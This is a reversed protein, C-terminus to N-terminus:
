FRLKIEAGKHNFGWSLKLQKVAQGPSKAGAVKAEGHHTNEQSETGWVRFPSGYRRTAHDDSTNIEFNGTDSSPTPTWEEATVASSCLLAVLGVTAMSNFGARLVIFREEAEM